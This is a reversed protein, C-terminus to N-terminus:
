LMAKLDESKRRTRWIHVSGQLATKGADGDTAHKGNARLVCPYHINLFNCGLEGLRHFTGM